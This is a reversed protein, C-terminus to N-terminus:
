FSRKYSVTIKRKVKKCCNWQILTNGAPIDHFVSMV